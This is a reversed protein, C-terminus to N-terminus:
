ITENLKTEIKAGESSKEEERKKNRIKIENSKATLQEIKAQKKELQYNKSKLSRIEESELVLKENQQKKELTEIIHNLSSIKQKLQEIEFSQNSEKTKLSFNENLLRTNEETMIKMKFEQDHKFEIRDQTKEM